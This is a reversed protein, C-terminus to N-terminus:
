QILIIDACLLIRFRNVMAAYAATHDRRTPVKAYWARAPVTHFKLIGINWHGVAPAQSDGLFAHVGITTDM